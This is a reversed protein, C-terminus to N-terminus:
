ATIRVEEKDGRQLVVNEAPANARAVKKKMVGVKFGNMLIEYDERSLERVEDPTAPWPYKGELLYKTIFAFGDGEFTFCKIVKRSSGCFMFLTGEELPNLKYKTRILNILADRGLHLNTKGCAIIVRKIGYNFADKVM